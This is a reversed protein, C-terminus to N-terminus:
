RKFKTELDKKKKSPIEVGDKTWRENEVGEEYALRFKNKIIYKIKRCILEKICEIESKKSFFRPPLIDDILEKQKILKLM